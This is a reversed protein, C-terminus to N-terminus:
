AAMQRTKRTEVKTTMAKRRTPHRLSTPRPWVVSAASRNLNSWTPITRLRLNLRTQSSKMPDQPSMSSAEPSKELHCAPHRKCTTRRRPSSQTAGRCRHSPPAERRAFLWAESCRSLTPWATEGQHHVGILATLAVPPRRERHARIRLSGATPAAQDRCRARGTTTRHTAVTAAATTQGMAVRGGTTPHTGLAPVKGTTRGM